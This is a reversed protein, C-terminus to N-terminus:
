EGYKAWAASFSEGDEFFMTEGESESWFFYYYGTESPNAAARLADLGPSCIAGPPLGKVNENRTNYPSDSALDSATLEETLDKGVAYYTTVDSGLNMNADLRNMFVSAIDAMDGTGGSEKQVISALTVVDYTSLGAKEAATMDIGDLKSACLDLMERVLSDATMDESIAYTSPFLFGEMSGEYCDELFPYDDAYQSAGTTVLETFTAKDIDTQNAVRSAIQELTFGEPITFSATAGTALANIIVDLDEGGVLAYTGAMLDGDYGLEAVREVFEASSGIVRSDVLAEAIQTTTEGSEVTFTVEAGEDVECFTGTYTTLDIIHSYAAFACAAVAVIVIAIVAAIRAGSRGRKKKPASHSGSAM